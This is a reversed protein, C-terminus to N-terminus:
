TTNPHTHTHKTKSDIITYILTMTNYIHHKGVKYKKKGLIPPLNIFHDHRMSPYCSRSSVKREHQISKQMSKSIIHKFTFEVLQTYIQMKQCIYQFSINQIKRRKHM